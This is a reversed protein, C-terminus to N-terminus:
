KMVKQFTFMGGGGHGIFGEENNEKIYEVIHFKCKNVYFHINRKEFCPTCTEWVITDPHLMEIEDWIMKGIGRTQVGYKVYLFHLENHRTEENIVVIAGGVIKNNVVAKYALAGKTNLSNDIDKEPLITGETKGYVDEFGKQFAEQMDNKFILLDEKNLLLLKFDM